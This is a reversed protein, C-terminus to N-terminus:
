KIIKAFVIINYIHYEPREGSCIWRIRAYAGAFVIDFALILYVGTQTNSLGVKKIAELGISLLWLFDM